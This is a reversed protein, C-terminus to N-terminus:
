GRRRRIWVVGALALGALLAVTAPEPIAHLVVGTLGSGLDYDYHLWAEYDVGAYTLIFHNDEGFAGGNISAFTGSILGDTSLLTIWQPATLYRDLIIQLDGTLTIVNAATNEAKVHLPQYNGSLVDSNLTMALVSGAEMILSGHIQLGRVGDLVAHEGPTADITGGSTITVPTYRIGDLVTSFNNNLLNAGGNWVWRDGGGIQGSGGLTGDYVNVLSTVKLADGELQLRGEQVYVGGVLYSNPSRLIITGPGATTLTDVAWSGNVGSGAPTNGHYGINDTAIILAGDSSDRYSFMRLGYMIEVSGGSRHLLGTGTITFDGEGEELLLYPARLAVENLHLTGKGRLTLSGRLTGSGEPTAAGTGNVTYTGGELTVHYNVSQSVSSATTPLATTPNLRVLDYGGGDATVLQAFGTKGDTDTVTAFSVVGDAGRLSAGSAADFHIASGTRTLDFHLTSVQRVPHGSVGFAAGTWDAFQLTTGEGGNTDVVIRSLRYGEVRNLAAAAIMTNGTSEGVAWLEGGAMRYAGGFDLPVTADLILKGEQIALFDIGTHTGGLTLAGSGTKNLTVTGSTTKTSGGTWLIGGAGTNMTVNIGGTANVGFQFANLFIQEYASNNTISHNNQFVLREGNFTYEGAAAGFTLSSVRYYDGDNDDIIPTYSDAAGFVLARATTGIPSNNPSWNGNWYFTNFPPTPSGSAATGTWTFTQASLMGPFLLIIVWAALFTTPFPQNNQSMTKM